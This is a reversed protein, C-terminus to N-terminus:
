LDRALLTVIAGLACPVLSQLNQPLDSPAPTYDSLSM